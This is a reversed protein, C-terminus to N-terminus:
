APMYMQKRGLKRGKAYDALWASAARIHGAAGANQRRRRRSLRESALPMQGYLWRRTLEVGICRGAAQATGGVGWPRLSCM